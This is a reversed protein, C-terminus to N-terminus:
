KLGTLGFLFSFLMEDRANSEATSIKLRLAELEKDGLLVNVARDKASEVSTYNYQMLDRERQWIADLNTSTLANVTKAFQM